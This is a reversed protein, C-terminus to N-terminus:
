KGPNSRTKKLRTSVSVHSIEDLYGLTVMQEALLRMTWRKRGEPPTSCALVVLKAEIDGTIKPPAGSRSREVLSAQFGEQVFRRCVRSVRDAHCDLREAIQQHTFRKPQRRDALLLIRARSLSRASARGRRIFRQLQDREAASLYVHLPQSM